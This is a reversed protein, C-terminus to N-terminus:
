EGMWLKKTVKSNAWLGQIVIELGERAHEPLESFYDDVWKGLDKEKLGAFRDFETEMRAREEKQELIEKKDGITKLKAM